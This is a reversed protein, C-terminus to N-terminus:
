NREVRALCLRHRTDFLQNSTLWLATISGLGTGGAILFMILIQYKIAEIPSGGALIQGTMMGPLSVIGVTSMSNIIPTLASRVSDKQIEKLAQSKTEGLLLRQEIVEKQQWVSELLRDVGLAIGNMTNGLLMGLLPIAYQPSYWPENQIIIVLTFCIMTFSSILMSSTGIGFSWWGGLKRKQRKVIARGANLLMIISIGFVWIFQTNEFIIKLVFGILFLQVVTRIAAIVISLAIGLQLRISLLALIVIFIASISLDTTSLIIM